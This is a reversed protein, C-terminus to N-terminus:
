DEDDELVRERYVYTMRRIAVAEGSLQRWPTDALARRDRASLLHSETESASKISMVLFRAFEKGTDAGCGEVITAAISDASRTLQARLSAFEPGRFGRAVDHITIALAHTAGGSRSDITTECVPMIAGRASGATVM